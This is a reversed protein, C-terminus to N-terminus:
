LLGSGAALHLQDPIVFYEATSWKSSSASSSSSDDSLSDEYNTEEVSIEKNDLFELDATYASQLM